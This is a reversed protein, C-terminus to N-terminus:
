PDKNEQIQDQLLENTDMKAVQKKAKKLEKELIESSLLYNFKRSM